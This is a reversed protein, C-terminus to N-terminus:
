EADSQAAKQLRAPKPAPNLLAVKTMFGPDDGAVLLPVAECVADIVRDVAQLETDDFESLVHRRVRDRDGPHGIGLRMRRYNQGIRSDISRLGNHGAHGGGAKVRVKGLMLDLDDHMVVVNRARLKYFRLAGGVARGSENMFTKPKLLLVKEDAITGARVTSHFRPRTPALDYRAALMDAAMFGINHRHRAYKRGPNGLGVLILM